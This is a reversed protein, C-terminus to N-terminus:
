KSFACFALMLVMAISEVVHLSMQIFANTYFKCRWVKEGDYYCLSKKSLMCYREQFKLKKLSLSHLGRQRKLLVGEKIIVLKDKDSEM